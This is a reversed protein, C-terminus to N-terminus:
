EITKREGANEQQTDILMISVIIANWFFRKNIADIFFSPALGTILILIPLLYKGKIGKYIIRIIPVCFLFLGVIGGDSLISLYTNHTAHYSGNYGYYAGWGAGFLFNNKILDIINGWIVDRSSGSSYSDFDFIRELSEIAVFNSAIHHIVASALIIFIIIKLKDKIDEQNNKLLVICLIIAFISVLGGRSATQFIALCNVALIIVSLYRWRKLYIYHYLSVTVGPLLQAALNNPDDEVGFLVVVQRATFSGHYSENFMLCLAGLVGSALWMANILKNMFRDSSRVNTLTVLLAVMGVQSLLHLNFIYWNDVRLVSILKLLFWIIMYLHFPRVTTVRYRLFQIVIIGLIYYKLYPGVTGNLYTEFFCLVFYLIICNDIVDSWTIVTKRELRKHDMANKYKM